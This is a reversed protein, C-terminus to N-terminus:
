VAFQELFQGPTMIAIGRWPHLILLDQDSSVIIDAKAELALALFRADKGDRCFGQAERVASELVPYLLSDRQYKQLFAMRSDFDVYRDFKKRNLVVELEALTEACAFVQHFLIARNLAQDPVSDPRLAAGILTSTDFVVRLTM